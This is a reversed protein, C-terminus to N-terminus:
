QINIKANVSLNLSNTLAEKNEQGLIKSIQNQIERWQPLAMELVERGDETLVLIRRRKDNGSRVAILGRRILPRINRTLTTRDLGLLDAMDTLTSNGDFKLTALLAFQSIRLGSDRLADDYAKTIKRSAIRIMTCFCIKAIYAQEDPNINFNNKISM